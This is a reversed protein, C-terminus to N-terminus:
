EILEAKRRVQTYCEPCIGHSFQVDSNKTIYVEMPVWTSDNNRVVKCYSCISILSSLTHFKAKTRELEEVAIARERKLQERLQQVKILLQAKTRSSDNEM